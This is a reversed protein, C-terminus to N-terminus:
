KKPTLTTSSTFATFPGLRVLLEIDIKEPTSFNWKLTGDLEGTLPANWTLTKAAEDWKGKWEIVAGQATYTWMRYAKKETDFTALDIMEGTSGGSHTKVMLFTGDYATEATDYGSLKTEPGGRAKIATNSNWTGLYHRLEPTLQGRTPAPVNTIGPPPFASARVKEWPTKTSTAGIFGFLMENTTQEGVTVDKPPSSPNNPNDASNDFVAEIELKTGAKAHIPEKFWYTEQWKYDWVPIDILVIPEGKPPTMTVKTRKGLLHMHPLVSHLTADTHLYIAGHAVHNTEGARIRETPKMGNVIVTQWPQEVPAKAFYLGVQTRDRGPQGNRHYHTQILFDSGKPLLWGMGSPVFQPAQGPAWGGIGGFAPADRQGGPAFFGVGMGTTYGPGRDALLRGAAIDSKDRALQNQELGRAQGTTDFFHLTHHVVRPNGPKVDYGVVWKNETLGTPIVFVRFLDDGVAGLKFDDGPTLILDPPGHRWGSVFEPASPADAPNGAPADNDAWTALTAIEKANLKREGRMALGSAPMWPPMQKNETYEKIDSAWRRAQDFTTLSFPGVEGQRHCVVCHNNLIPAVDKYFTVAGNKAPAAPELDIACGIPTTVAKEVPKGAVIAALADALDHRTIIPNRKLRASYADDIRGRYRVMGEGDLVFAEPTTRAKLGAALEKKSDLVVPMSLKFGASSKAV